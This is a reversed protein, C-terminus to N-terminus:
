ELVGVERYFREAGAHLPTSVGTLASTLQISRGKEHGSELFHRNRPNWLAKTIQYVLEADAAASTIWQAGISLTPVHDAMGPYTQGPIVDLGFFKHRRVITEAQRGAIPVLEALGLEALDSVAKVPYGGIVFFADLEDRIFLEVAEGPDVEVANLQNLRIGYASLILEANVRTGSGPKDISVRKGVMDRLSKIAAGQRAVLHVSEPYLNAIVRLNDLRGRRFLNEGNFAWNVLDAQALGSDATGEAVANINAVSGESTSAVAVLGPVGCSGDRECPRSGPPNSIALALAIGIPFYTGAASGTVIRFFRLDQAHAERAANGAM